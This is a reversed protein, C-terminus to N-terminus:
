KIASLAAITQYELCGVFEYPDVIEDLPGTPAPHDIWKGCARIRCTGTAYHHCEKKHEEIIQAVTMKDWAM